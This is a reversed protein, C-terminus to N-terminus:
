KTISGSFISSIYENMEQAYFLVKTIEKDENRALVIYTIQRFHNDNTKFSLTISTQNELAKKLNSIGVLPSIYAQHDPHVHERMFTEVYETFSPVEIPGGVSADMRIIRYTDDLMNVIGVTPYVKALTLIADEFEGNYIADTKDRRYEPFKQYFIQKDLYMNAEAVATVSEIKDPAANWAFGVSAIPIEAKNIQSILLSAAKDMNEHSINLFVIVFEDGSIRFVDYDKFADTLMLSYSLLLNNGAEHGQTDNVVKLGNVDSFIVGVGEHLDSLNFSACLGKYSHFNKLETLADHYCYRELMRHNELENVYSADIDRIMLFIIQNTSSYDKSKILETSVWNFENGTKRRYKITMFSNGDSFYNQIFSLRTNFKYYEVDESFVNGENVFNFLWSSFSNTPYDTKEEPHIKIIEYHDNLLDAKVVKIYNDLLTGLAELISDYM